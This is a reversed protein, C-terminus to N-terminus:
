GQAESTTFFGLLRKKLRAESRVFARVADILLWKEYMTYRELVPINMEDIIALVMLTPLRLGALGICKELVFDKIVDLRTRRIIKKEYAINEATVIKWKPPNLCVYNGDITGILKSKDHLDLAILSICYDSNIYGDSIDQLFSNLCVPFTNEKVCISLLLRIVRPDNKDRILSTIVSNQMPFVINGKLPRCLDAPNMGKLFMIKIIILFIDPNPGNHSWGRSGIQSVMHHYNRVKPILYQLLKTLDDNILNGFDRHDTIDRPDAINRSARVLDLLVDSYPIRIYRKHRELMILKSLVFKYHNHKFLQQRVDSSTLHNLLSVRDPTLVKQDECLYAFLNRHACKLATYQSIEHINNKVLIKAILNRNEM